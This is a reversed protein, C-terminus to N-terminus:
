ACAVSIPFHVGRQDRRSQSLRMESMLSCLEHRMKRNDSGADGANGRGVRQEFAPVMDGDDIALRKRGHFGREGVAPLKRGAIAFHPVRDAGHELAQAPHRPAIRRQQEVGARAPVLERPNGLKEACDGPVIDVRHFCHPERDLRAFVQEIEGLPFADIEIALLAANEVDVAICCAESIGCAGIFQNTCAPEVPKLNGRLLHAPDVGSDRAIVAAPVIGGRVRCAVDALERAAKGRSAFALARHQLQIARYLGDRDM